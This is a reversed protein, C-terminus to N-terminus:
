SCISFSLWVIWSLIFLGFLGVVCNFKILVELSKIGTLISVWWIISFSNVAMKSSYICAFIDCKLNQWLSIFLFLPLGATTKMRWFSVRSTTDHLHAKLHRARRQCCEIM